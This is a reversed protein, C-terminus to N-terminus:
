SRVLPFREENNILAEIGPLKKGEFFELFAGGATSIYDIHHHLNNKTLLAVTDGGGVLSYIKKEASLADITQAIKISGEDYPQYEYAGIPGNWLVSASKQLSEQIVQVSEPGFDLIMGDFEQGAHCYLPICDTLSTGVYFDQPLIIKNSFKTLLDRCVSIFDEEFLSTGINKYQAKLFTNAMAGGIVMVDVLPLINQLVHIKTSVKSGGIIAIIPKQAKEIFYTINQMEQEMQLGAYSPVNHTIVEVSAHARHSCSFADNVYVQCPGLIKKAFESDNQTEGEYFRLNELLYVGEALANENNINTIHTISIQLMNELYPLLLKTSYNASMIGPIPRGMHTAITLTKTKTLLYRITPIVKQIRTDDLVHGNKLPVNLDARLFIPHNSYPLSQLTKINTLM